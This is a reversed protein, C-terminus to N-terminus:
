RATLTKTKGSGAGAVVRVYGETTTAAERQQAERERVQQEQAYEAQRRMRQMLQHLPAMVTLEHALLDAMFVMRPRMRTLHQRLEQYLRYELSKRSDAASLLREELEKLKDTTFRDANALTQRRQFHSPVGADRHAKSLEFYYGFVRNYGLKLRPLAIQEEQLLAQLRAEGHEVLDLLEDLEANYGPRFLGGESVQIPPDDVLARSLLDAVDSMDDWQQVLHLLPPPLFDGRLEKDTPLPRSLPDGNQEPLTLSERVAPLMLLSERLAALDRPQCRNLTIRTSLREVDLVKALAKRLADRVHALDHFFAVAEQHELVTNLNRWPAHLRESLLRGGMPTLSHDLVQWLTGTGKRGDLRRFLELNRETLEDLVLHRGTDL